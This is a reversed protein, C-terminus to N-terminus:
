SCGSKESEEPLRDVSLIIAAVMATTAADLAAKYSNIMWVLILSLKQCKHVHTNRLMTGCKTQRIVDVKM